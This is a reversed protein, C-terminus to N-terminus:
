RWSDIAAIKLQASMWHIRESLEILDMYTNMLYKALLCIFVYIHAMINKTTHVILSTFM